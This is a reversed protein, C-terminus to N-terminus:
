GIDLGVLDSRGNRIDVIITEVGTFNHLNGGNWEAQVSQGGNSSSIALTHIKSTTVTITLLSGTQVATGSTRRGTISLQHLTQDVGPALEHSTSLIPPFGPFDFTIKDHRARGAQVLIAQVGTVSNPSRGNWEVTRAGAAGLTVNATNTTRQGVGVTLVTGSQLLAGGTRPLRFFSPFVFRAGDPFSVAQSLLLRSELSNV